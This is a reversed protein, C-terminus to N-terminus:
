HRFRGGRYGRRHGGHGKRGGKKRRGPSSDDQLFSNAIERIRGLLRGERNLKRQNRKYAELVLPSQPFTRPPSYPELNQRKAVSIEKESIQYIASTPCEDLCLLCENCRRQDIYAKNDMISIAQVPCVSVCIACGKCKEADVLLSM